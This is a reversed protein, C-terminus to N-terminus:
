ATRRWINVVRYSNLVNLATGSGQYNTYPTATGTNDGGSSSTYGLDEGGETNNGSIETFSNDAEEAYGFGTNSNFGVPSIHSHTPQTHSHSDVLHRHSPMNAVSLTVQTVGGESGVVYTTGNAGFLM